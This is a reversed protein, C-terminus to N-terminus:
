SIERGGLTARKFDVKWTTAKNKFLGPMITQFGSIMLLCLYLHSNLPPHYQESSISQKRSLGAMM